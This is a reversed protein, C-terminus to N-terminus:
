RRIRVDPEPTPSDFVGTARRKLCEDFFSGVYRRELALARTGDISGLNEVPPTLGRSKLAPALWSWDTFNLHTAATLTVWYRRGKLNTWWRALTSERQSGDLILFPRRFPRRRARGYVSGAMDAACAISPKAAAISAATLGGLSHGLVGVRSVDAGALAGRRSLSDLNDFVFAVDDIRAGIARLILNRPDPPLTRRVTEGNPFEVVETERTHDVAIVVYGRSALEEFLGTYLSHPVSYGPSFVLVPFRGRRARANLRANTAVSRLITAPVGPSALAKAVATPMYRARRGGGGVAPYYVQALIRRPEREAAFPDRRSRDVLTLTETGFPLPGTPRPVAV